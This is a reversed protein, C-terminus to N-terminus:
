QFFFSTIFVSNRYHKWQCMEWGVLVQGWINQKQTSHATSELGRSCNDVMNGADDIEEDRRFIRMLICVRIGKVHFFLLFQRYNMQSMTGKLSIGM